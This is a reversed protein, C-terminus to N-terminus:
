KGYIEIERFGLGFKNPTGELVVIKISKTTINKKLDIIKESSEKPFDSIILQNKKNFIIKVKILNTNHSTHAVLILKSFTRPKKWKFNIWAGNGEKKSMWLHEFKRQINKDVVNRPNSKKNTSSASIVAQAAINDTFEVKKNSTTKKKSDESKNLHVDFNYENGMEGDENTIGNEKNKLAKIQKQIKNAGDLDGQKMLLKQRSKYDKIMQTRIIEMSKKYQKKLLNIRAQNKKLVVDPKAKKDKAIAILLFLSSLITVLLFKKM